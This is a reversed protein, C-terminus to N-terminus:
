DGRLIRAEEESSRHAVNLGSGIELGAGYRVRPTIEIFWHVGAFPYYHVTLNYDSKTHTRVRRLASALFPYIGSLEPRSQHDTRFVLTQWPLPASPSSIFRLDGDSDILLRSDEARRCLPCEGAFSEVIGRARPPLHMLTILQSHTHPISAGAGRGENKFLTVFPDNEHELLRASWARLATEGDAESLDEFSIGHRRTEVIVESVGDVEGETLPYRNHFVRATWTGAQPLALITPPTDEEHGPCFPCRTEESLYLNPRDNRAPALIRLEGSIPSREWIGM